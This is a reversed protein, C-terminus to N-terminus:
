FFHSFRGVDAQSLREADNNCALPRSCRLDPRPALGFVFAVPPSNFHQPLFNREAVDNWVNARIWIPQVFGDSTTPPCFSSYQLRPARIFLKPGM